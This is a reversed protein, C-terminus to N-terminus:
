KRAASSAIRLNKMSHIRLEVKSLAPTISELKIKSSNITDSNQPTLEFLSPSRSMESSPM